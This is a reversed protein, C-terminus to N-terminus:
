EKKEKLEKAEKSEEPLEIKIEKNLDELTGRTTVRLPSSSTATVIEYFLKDLKKNKTNHTQNEANLGAISLLWLFSNSSRFVSSRRFILFLETSSLKKFSFSAL